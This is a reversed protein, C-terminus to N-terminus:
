TWSHSLVYLNGDSGVEIDTVSLPAEAFIVGEM